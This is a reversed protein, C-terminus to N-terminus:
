DELTKKFKDWPKISALSLIVSAAAIALWLGTVAGWGFHESLYGYGFSAVVVGFSAAANILSTATGTYGINRYAAAILVITNTIAYMMTTVVIMSVIILWVPVAGMFQMVILPPISVAFCILMQMYENKVKRFLHSIPFLCGINFIFILATIVGSVTPPINYSEMIMTPIWTKAGNDLMTKFLLVVAGFFLATSFFLPLFKVDSKEYKVPEKPKSVSVLIKETKAQVYLWIVLSFVLSATNLVFVGSWGFAELIFTVLLFSSFGSIAMCLSIYLTAKQRHEPILYQTVIRSAAPWVGFQVLGCLTWVILVCWFNNTFCLILNAAIAGVTGITFLTFPSVKDTTKGFFIQGLGYLLYFAASIIGANTKTYIGESVIYAISATYNSKIFCSLTYVIWTTVFLTSSAKAEKSYNHLHM